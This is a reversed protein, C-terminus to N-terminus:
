RGRQFELYRRVFGGELKLLETRMLREQADLQLFQQEVQRHLTSLDNGAIANRVSVQLQLGTKVLVGADVAIYREGDAATEYCLIGPKLIASCDLRHPLLGLSGQLTQVVVRQVQACDLYIQHPLLVKLTMAHNM